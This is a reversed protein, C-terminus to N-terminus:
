MRKKQFVLRISDSDGADVNKDVCDSVRFDEDSDNVNSKSNDDDESIDENLDNSDDDAGGEPDVVDSEYGEKFSECAEIYDM